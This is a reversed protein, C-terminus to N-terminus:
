RTDEALLGASYDAIWEEAMAQDEVAFEAYLAGLQTTDLRSVAYARARFKLFALYEAVQQLETENLSDLAQAVYEKTTMKFGGAQVTLPRTM